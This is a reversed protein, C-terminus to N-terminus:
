LKAAPEEVDPVDLDGAIRSLDILESSRRSPTRCTSRCLDNFLNALRASAFSLCPLAVLYHWEFNNWKFALAFVGATTLLSVWNSLCFPCLLLDVFFGENHAELWARHRDFISGHHWVEIMQWCALSSALTYLLIDVGHM